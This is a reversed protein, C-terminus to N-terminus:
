SCVFRCWGSVSLVIVCLVDVFMCVSVCCKWFCVLVDGLWYSCVVCMCCVCCNSFIVLSDILCIVVFVLNLEIVM